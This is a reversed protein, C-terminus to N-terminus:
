APAAPGARACRKLNIQAWVAQGALALVVGLALPHIQSAIGLALVVGPIFWLWFLRMWPRALQHRAYAGALPELVPDDIARGM